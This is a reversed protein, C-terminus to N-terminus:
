IRSGRLSRVKKVMKSHDNPFNEKFYRTVEPETPYKYSDYTSRFDLEVAVVDNTAM